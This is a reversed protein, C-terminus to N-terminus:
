TDLNIKGLLIRFKQLALGRHSIKNKEEMSLEAFTKRLPPYYFISDYGFGQKGTPERIIKGEAVGEVWYEDKNSVLSIVTRFRATREADPIDILKNLLLNVNNKSTANEGAFRASRIGPAGNLFDVELGTDDAIAPLNTIRNVTRAKTFSNEKLTEGTEEIEDIQPFEDLSIFNYPLDKLYERMENLKHQNHTAIVIKM